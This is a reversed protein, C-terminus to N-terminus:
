KIINPHECNASLGEGEMRKVKGKVKEESIEEMGM